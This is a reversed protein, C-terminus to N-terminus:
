LAGSRILSVDIEHDDRSLMMIQDPLGPYVVRLPLIRLDGTPPDM